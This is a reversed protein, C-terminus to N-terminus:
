AAPATRTFGEISLAKGTAADFAIVAGSLAATGSACELRYPIQTRLRDLCIKADMGIIGEVVGTMGLDSIYATGKPLLRADATRVHTHTGVIAGALGDLHFGLAEKERTTEAHFDILSVAGADSFEKLVASACRFPCDIPTM